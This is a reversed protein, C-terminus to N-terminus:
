GDSPDPRDQSTLLLDALATLRERDSAERVSGDHGELLVRGRAYLVSSIAEAMALSAVRITYDDCPTPLIAGHVIGVHNSVCARVAELELLADEAAM